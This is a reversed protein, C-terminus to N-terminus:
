AEAESTSPQPKTLEPWIRHWDDPRLDQRTVVGETIQEILVCSEPSPQRGAYRHRWQRLQDPNVNLRKALDTAPTAGDRSLYAHLDM